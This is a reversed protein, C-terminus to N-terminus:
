LCRMRDWQPVKCSILSKNCLIVPSLIFVSYLIYYFYYYYSSFVVVTAKQFIFLTHIFRQITYTFHLILFLMLNSQKFFSNQHWHIFDFRSTDHKIWRDITYYMHINIHRYTMNMRLNMNDDMKNKRTFPTTLFTSNPSNQQNSYGTDRYTQLVTRLWTTM